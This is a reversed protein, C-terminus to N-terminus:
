EELDKGAAIEAGLATLTLTGDNERVTGMERLSRWLPITATTVMEGRASMVVMKKLANREAETINELRHIQKRLAYYEAKHIRIKRARDKLTHRRDAM